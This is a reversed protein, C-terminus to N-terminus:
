QGTPEMTERDREILSKYLIHADVYGLAPHAFAQPITGIIAFGLKEWLRLAGDNSALVFNFQMARYGAEVAQHQSHTCMAAAVGRGRAQPDVIYGCNCIHSGGGPQNRRLYYTGLLQGEEEAVFTADPAHMWYDRAADSTIQPDVAYTDGRRFVDRLM